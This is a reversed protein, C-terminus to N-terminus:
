GIEIEKVDLGRARLRADIRTRWADVDSGPPAALHVRVARGEEAHVTLVSGALAGRGIELRATGRGRESSWAIRRVLEPLIEELSRARSPAAAEVPAPAQLALPPAGAGPPPAIQASRRAQPDLPDDAHHTGHGTREGSGRTTAAHTTAAAVPPRPPAPPHAPAVAAACRGPILLARFATAPRALPLAGRSLSASRSGVHISHAAAPPSTSITM